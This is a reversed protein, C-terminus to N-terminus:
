ASHCNQMELISCFYSLTLEFGRRSEGRGVSSEFLSEVIRKLSKVLSGLVESVM